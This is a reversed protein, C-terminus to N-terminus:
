RINVTFFTKKNLKLGDYLKVVVTSFAEGDNINCLLNACAILTKIEMKEFFGIGGSVKFPIKRLMLEQEIKTSQANGRYIVAIDKFKLGRNYKLLNEIQEVVFSAEENENFCKKVNIM